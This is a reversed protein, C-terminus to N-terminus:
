SRVYKFVGYIIISFEIIAFISLPLIIKKYKKSRAVHINEKLSMTYSSGTNKNVVKLRAM